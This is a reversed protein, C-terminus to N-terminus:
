SCNTDLKTANTDFKTADLPFSHTVVATKNEVRKCSKGRWLLELILRIPACIMKSEFFDPSQVTNYAKHPTAIHKIFWSKRKLGDPNTQPNNNRRWIPITRYREQIPFDWISILFDCMASAPLEQQHVRPQSACGRGRLSTFHITQYWLVQCKHLPFDFM